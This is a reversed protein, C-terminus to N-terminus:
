HKNHCVLGYAVYNHSPHNTTISFVDIYTNISELDHIQIPNSKWDLIWMDESLEDVCILEGTSKYLPQKPTFSYKNNIRISKPSRSYHVKVVRTTIILGNDNKSCILSGERINEIPVPGDPTLIPTNSPVCNSGSIKLIPKQPLSLRLQHPIMSTILERQNRFVAYLDSDCGMRFIANQPTEGAKQWAGNQGFLLWKELYKISLKLVEDRKNGKLQSVVVRRSELCARDYYVRILIHAPLGSEIDELLQLKAHAEDLKDERMAELAEILWKEAPGVLLEPYFAVFESSTTYDTFIFERPRQWTEHLSPPRVSIIIRHYHLDPPLYKKTIVREQNIKELKEAFLWIFPKYKGSHKVLRGIDSEEFKVSITIEHSAQVPNIGSIRQCFLWYFHSEDPLNLRKELLPDARRFDEDLEDALRVLAAIMRPRVTYKGILETESFVACKEEIDERSSHSVVAARIIERDRENIIYANQEEQVLLASINAHDKRDRIIGIDHYLITMMALFLEYPKITHEKLPDDGLLRDLNELVRQIHQPGHDNGGPFAASWFGYEVNFLRQKLIIYREYLPQETKEGARKLSLEIGLEAM